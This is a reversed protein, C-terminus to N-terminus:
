TPVVPGDTPRARADGRLRLGVVRMLALLSLWGAGSFTRESMSIVVIVLISTILWRAVTAHQRWLSIGDSLCLICLALVLAVGVLGLDLQVQLLGNHVHNHWFGAKHWIELTEEGWPWSYIAGAGYGIVPREQAVEIAAGWIATRGTLTLDKGYFDVVVALSSWAAAICLVVVPLTMVVINAREQPSRRLLIGLLTWLLLGLLVGIIGTLSRSGLALVAILVVTLFKRHRRPDFALVAPLAVAVFTGLGNKHIFGGKWAAISTGDVLESVRSAPDVILLVVTVLLALQFAMTQWALVEKVTLLSAVVIMAVPWIASTRIEYFTATPSDSWALSVVTWTLLLLVPAVLRLRALASASALMVMAVPLVLVPYTVLPRTVIVGFGTLTALLLYAIGLRRTLPGPRTDERDTPASPSGWRPSPALRISAADGSGARVRERGSGRRLLLM